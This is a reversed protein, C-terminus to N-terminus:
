VTPHPYEGFSRHRHVRGARPNIKGQHPLPGFHVSRGRTQVKAAFSDGRSGTRNPGRQGHGRAQVRSRDGLRFGHGLPKGISFEQIVPDLFPGTAAKEIEEMTLDADVTYVDVTNVSDVSINLDNIIRRKIKEGRADRINPKLGIEVRYTM